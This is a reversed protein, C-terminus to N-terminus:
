SRFVRFMRVLKSTFHRLSFFIKLILLLYNPIYEPSNPKVLLSVYLIHFIFLENWFYQFWRLVYRRFIIRPFNEYAFYTFDFTFNCFFTLIGKLFNKSFFLWFWFNRIEIKSINPNTWLREFDFSIILIDSKFSFYFYGYREWYKFLAVMVKM